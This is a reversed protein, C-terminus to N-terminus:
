NLPSGMDMLPPYDGLALPIYLCVPGWIRVRVQPIPHLAPTRSVFRISDRDLDYWTAGYEYNWVPDLSRHRDTGYGWHHRYGGIGKFQMDVFFSEAPCRLDHSVEIWTSAPLDLWETAFDAEPVRWIRVRVEGAGHEPDPVVTIERSTATSTLDYWYFGDWDPTMGPRRVDSGYRVQHPKSKFEDARAVLYVLFNDTNGKIGHDLTQVSGVWGSHYDDEPVV